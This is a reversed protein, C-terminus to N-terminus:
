IEIYDPRNIQPELFNAMFLSPHLCTWSQFRGDQVAQELGKKSAVHRELFSGPQIYENKRMPVGISSSAVVQKVGAAKAIKVINEAWRRERDLDNRDPRLCLFLKECGAIGDALADDNDWDGQTLQVGAAELAEAKPGDLSRVLAHVNWNLDRLQRAVAGGQKRTASLVLVTPTQSSM